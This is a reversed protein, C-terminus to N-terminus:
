SYLETTSWWQMSAPKCTLDGSIHATHKCPFSLVKIIKPHQYLIDGEKVMAKNKVIVPM